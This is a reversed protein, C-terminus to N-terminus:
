VTLNSTSNSAAQQSVKQLISQATAVLNKKLKKVRAVNPDSPDDPLNGATKIINLQGSTIPTEADEESSYIVVEDVNENLKKIIDNAKSTFLDM